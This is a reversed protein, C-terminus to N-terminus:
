LSLPIKFDMGDFLIERDLNGPDKLHIKAVDNVTVGAERIMFPPILNNTMTPVYLANRIVVVHKTGSHPCDYQVAADVLPVDMPKYDPRYPQVTVTKGVYAVAYANMGVVVMNAHSDLETRSVEYKNAEEDSADDLGVVAYSLYKHLYYSLGPVISSISETSM